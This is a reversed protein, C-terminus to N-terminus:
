RSATSHFGGVLNLQACHYGDTCDHWDHYSRFQAVVLLYILLIGVGYAIGMDRFTEFTIQWEGDWKLSYQYPNEPQSFYHQTLPGTATQVQEDLKAAIAFMGYLPSDLDGALDGTVFVVPLMDKHYIAQERESKQITVVDSM